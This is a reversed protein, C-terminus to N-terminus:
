SKRGPWPAMLEPEERKILQRIWEICRTNHIADRTKRLSRHKRDAELTARELNTM